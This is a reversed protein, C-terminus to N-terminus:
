DEDEISGEQESHSDQHEAACDDCRPGTHCLYCSDQGGECNDCYSLECDTCRYVGM